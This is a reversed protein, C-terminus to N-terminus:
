NIKITLRIEIHIEQKKVFRYQIECGGGLLLWLVTVSNYMALSYYMVITYMCVCDYLTICLLLSISADYSVKFDIYFTYCYFEICGVCRVIM